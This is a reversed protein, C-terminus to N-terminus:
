PKGRCDVRYFVWLGKLLLCSDYSAMKSLLCHFISQIQLVPDAVFFFFLIM